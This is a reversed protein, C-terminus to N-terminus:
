GYMEPPKRHRTTQEYAYAIGLLTGDSFATGIFTIGHPGRTSYGGDPDIIGTDAWGGPVTIAPYGAIAASDNGGEDGLSVLADLRYHELTWDIGREGALIRDDQLSEWYEPETLQGSTENAWVLTSQGYKLAEVSHAENFAILEDLSHVPLGKATQALYDNVGKKFEYRLIKGDWNVLEGPLEVPDVVEAGAMRLAEIASDLIAIRAEDLRECYRRPVGIRKGKLAAAHLFATYDLEGQARDTATVPDREDTGSIVSLLIAADMVTRTIPGASDQTWSIPIIGSRSVLGVTPKLGVVGNYSAPSIISGSTETGIAAAALNASVASASGSSSGGVFIEGPGFPNKTQGGRSSYGAWMTNSMFNAWETMNTKGLLVAGAMRLRGVVFSDAAACSEALALAGASTHMRDGTDMNDKILLPIGHLPGRSGKAQREEDLQRAITEADPNLELIARLSHNYASIRDVYLQVLQLSTM